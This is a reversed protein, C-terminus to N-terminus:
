DTLPPKLDKQDLIVREVNKEGQKLNLYINKVYILDKQKKRNNHNKRRLTANHHEKDNTM